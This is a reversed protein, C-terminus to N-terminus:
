RRCTWSRESELTFRALPEGPGRTPRQWYRLTADVLPPARMQRCAYDLLLLQVVGRDVANDRLKYWRSYRLAAQPLMGPM